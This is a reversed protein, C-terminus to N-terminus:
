KCAHSDMSADRGSRMVGAHILENIAPNLYNEAIWEVMPVKSRPPAPLQRISWRIEPHAAIFDVLRPSRANSTQL